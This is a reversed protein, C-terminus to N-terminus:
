QKSSFQNGEISLLLNKYRCCFNIESRKFDQCAFDFLPLYISKRKKQVQFKYKTHGKIEFSVLETTELLL